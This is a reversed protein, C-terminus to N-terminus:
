GQAVNVPDARRARSRCLRPRDADRCDGPAVPATAPGSSRPRAAPAGGPGAAASAAPHCRDLFAEAQRPPRATHSFTTPGGPTPLRPSPGTACSRRSPAPPWRAPSRTAATATSGASTVLEPHFRDAQGTLSVILHIATLDDALWAGRREALAYLADDILDYTEDGSRPGPITM